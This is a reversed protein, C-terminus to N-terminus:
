NKIVEDNESYFFLIHNLGLFPYMFIMLIIINEPILNNFLKIVISFLNILGILILIKNKLFDMINTEKKLYLALVMFDFAIVEGAVFLNKFGLEQMDDSAVIVFFFPFICLLFFLFFLPNKEKLHPFKKNLMYGLFISGANFIPILFIWLTELLSM